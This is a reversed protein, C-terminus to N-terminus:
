LLNKVIDQTIKEGTYLGKLKAVLGDIERLNEGVKAVILDIAEEELNYDGLRKKILMRKLEETPPAIGEKVAGQLKSYLIPHFDKFYETPEGSTLVVFKRKELLKEIIYALEVQAREAGKLTNLDDLLLYDVDTYRRRFSTLERMFSAEEYGARFDQLSLFLVNKSVDKNRVRNSIAKLIHSKGTGPGGYIWLFNISPDDFNTVRQALNYVKENSKDVV